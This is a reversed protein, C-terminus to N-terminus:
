SAQIEESLQELIEGYDELQSIDLDEPKELEAESFEEEWTEKWSQFAQGKDSEQWKETRDDYYDQMEETIEAKLSNADTIAENHATLAEEVGEWAEAMATNFKDVAMDLATFTERLRSVLEDRRSLDEKCLKTMSNEQINPPAALDSFWIRQGLIHQVVDLIM